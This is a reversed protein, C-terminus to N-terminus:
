KVAFLISRYNTGWRNVHDIQVVVPDHLGSAIMAKRIRKQFARIRNAVCNIRGFHVHIHYVDHRLNYDYIRIVRSCWFLQKFWHTRNLARRIVTQRLKDIEAYKM